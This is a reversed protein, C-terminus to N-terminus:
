VELVIGNGATGLRMVLEALILSNEPITDVSNAM